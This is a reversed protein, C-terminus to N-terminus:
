RIAELIEERTAVGKEVLLALLKRLVDEDRAVLAELTSIRDQLADIEADRNTVSPPGSLGLGDTPPPTFPVDIPQPRIARPAPRLGERRRAAEIETADPRPDGPGDAGLSVTDGTDLSLEPERRIVRGFGRRYHKALAREIMKPGALYPRINLQTRIRLEDIIGLNTPDAMAVDLFKMPQAFPVINYHEALEGPVLDLVSSHIEITDLDITPLSLQLSLVRVLESESLLKMEVLTRGLTGGWRRQENLAMRLGQDSLVGAEVLMEGLKKRAM